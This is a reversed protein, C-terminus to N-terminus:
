APFREGVWEESKRWLQEAHAPDLAYSRVGVLTGLREESDNVPSVQCDECFQGAIDDAKAVVAAWVSTAAGQAPTKTASPPLGQAALGKDISAVLGDLGGEGLHRFLETDVRGPHIGCARIGRAAHRQGFAVAFLMNATKSRSYAKWQNYPTTTFNPDDLDVDGGRHASSSLMVLRGNARLLGAIRNILLFHGLHNTGLQIEFGDETLGFPIAMVGANAIILDFPKGAAVLQDAAARVSGFSALDLQLLELGGKVRAADRVTQLAQEAKALDRATGVVEAGRAILARATEAGIGSSVGTVLARKGSLDINALVEDATSTKGFNGAM